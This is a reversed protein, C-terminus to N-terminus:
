LWLILLCKSRLLFVIAFRSLMNSLLLDSQWGLEMEDFSHKKLYGHISILTSGYLLLLALSNISELQLAPSSEQSERPFCPLDTLGVPFWSQIYMPLVSASTGIISGDSTFVTESSFVKISPFISPLFLLPCCFILHNCPMVSEISMLKLLSWSVAFSLSAQLASTWPTAFLQVYSLLQVLVVIGIKFIFFRLNM